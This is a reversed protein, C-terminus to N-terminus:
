YVTRYVSESIQFIFKRENSEKDVLFCDVRSLSIEFDVKSYKKTEKKQFEFPYAYREDTICIIEDEEYKMEFLTPRGEKSFVALSVSSPINKSVNDTFTKFHDLNIVETGIVVDNNRIAQQMTYKSFVLLYLLSALSIIGIAIALFM